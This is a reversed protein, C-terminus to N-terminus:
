EEDSLKLKLKKQAFKRIYNLFDDKVALVIQYGLLSSIGIIGTFLSTDPTARLWTLYSYSSLSTFVEAVAPGIVLAAFLGALLAFVAEPIRRPKALLVGLLLGLVGALLILYDNPKAMTNERQMKIM